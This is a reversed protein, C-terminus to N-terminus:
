LTLKSDMLENNISYCNINDLKCKNFREIHTKINEPLQNYNNDKLSDVVIAIWIDNLHKKKM